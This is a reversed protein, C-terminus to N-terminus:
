FTKKQWFTFTSISNHPCPLFIWSDIQLSEWHCCGPCNLCYFLSLLSNYNMSYFLIWLDLGWNTPQQGAFYFTALYIRPRPVHRPKPNLGWNPHMRSVVSQHKETEDMNREREKQREEGRELFLYIFLCIFDKIIFFFEHTWIFMFFYVSFLLHIFFRLCEVCCCGWLCM